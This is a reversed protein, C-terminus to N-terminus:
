GQTDPEPPQAEVPVEGPAEDAVDPMPAAEPRAHTPYKKGRENQFGPSRYANPDTGKHDYRRGNMGRPMGHDRRAGEHSTLVPSALGPAATQAAAIDEEDDKPLGAYDIEYPREVDQFGPSRYGNADQPGPMRPLLRAVHPPVQANPNARQGGRPNQPAGTSPGQPGKRPGRDNRRSM